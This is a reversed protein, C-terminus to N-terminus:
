QRVEVSLGSRWGNQARRRKGKWILSFIRWSKGIGTSEELITIKKNRIGKLLLDVMQQQAQGQNWRRELAGQVVAKKEKFGNGHHVAATVLASILDSSEPDSGHGEIRAALVNSLYLSLKNCNGTQVWDRVPVLGQDLAGEL